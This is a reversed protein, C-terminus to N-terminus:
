DIIKVPSNKVYEFLQLLSDFVCKSTYEDLKKSMTKLTRKEKNTLTKEIFVGYRAYYLCITDISYGKNLYNLLYYGILQKLNKLPKDDYTISGTTKFDILSDNIIIDADAGGIRQSYIGFNPNYIINTQYERLKYKNDFKEIFLNLLDELLWKSDRGMPFRVAIRFQNLTGSRYIDELKSLNYAFPLIRFYDYIKVENNYVYNNYIFDIINEYNIKYKEILDNGDKHLRDYGNKAVLDYINNVKVNFYKYQFKQLIFRCMYDFTMGMFSYLELNGLKRKIKLDTKYDYKNFEDLLESYDFMNLIENLNKDENIRSTLSM